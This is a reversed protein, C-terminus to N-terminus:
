RDYDDRHGRLYVMGNIASGGGLVKGAPWVDVRGLRSADPEAAYCWDWRPNGMLRTSLGPVLIEPRRASGGAEILLVRRSADETLRNALVCGASGGGVIIYDFQTEPM